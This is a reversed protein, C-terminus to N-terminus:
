EKIRVGEFFAFGERLHEPLFIGKRGHGDFWSPVIDGQSIGVARLFHATEDPGRLPPTVAIVLIGSLASLLVFLRAPHPWRTWSGSAQRTRALDTAAFSPPAARSASGWRM